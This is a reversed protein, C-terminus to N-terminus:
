LICKNYILKSIYININNIIFEILSLSNHMDRARGKHWYHRRLVGERGFGAKEAVRQQGKTELDAFVDRLARRM